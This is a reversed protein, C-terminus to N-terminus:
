HCLFIFHTSEFDIKEFFHYNQKIHHLSIQKIIIQNMAISSHVKEHRYHLHEITSEIILVHEKDYLNNQGFLFTEVITADNLNLLSRNLNGIEDFLTKRQNSNNSCHLFFHIITEIHRGCSCYSDLSDQFNHRFKHELLHSSGVRLRTFLKIGHPNHVNFTSYPSPRVCKFM